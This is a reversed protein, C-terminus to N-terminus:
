DLAGANKLAWMLRNAPRHVLYQMQRGFPQGNLGLWFVDELGHPLYESLPILAPVGLMVLRMMAEM